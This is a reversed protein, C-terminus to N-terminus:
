DDVTCMKVNKASFIDPIVLRDSFFRLTYTSCFFFLICLLHRGESQYVIPMESWRRKGQKMTYMLFAVSGFLLISLGLFVYSMNEGINSLKEARLMRQDNHDFLSFAVLSWVIAITCLIFVVM